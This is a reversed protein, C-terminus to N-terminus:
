TLRTRITIHATHSSVSPSSASVPLLTPARGRRMDSIFDFECFNGIGGADDKKM